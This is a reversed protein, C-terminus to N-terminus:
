DREMKRIEGGYADITYELEERDCYFELEYVTKRRDREFKIKSFSVDEAKVGTDSLAIEKAREVGILVDGTELVEGGDKELSKEATAAGVDRGKMEWELIMGDAERIVYEYEVADALFSVEYVAEGDEWETETRLREAMDATVGADALATEEATKMDVASTGTEQAAQMDSASSGTEQAAQMDSIETTQAAQKEAASGTGGFVTLAALMGAALIYRGNFLKLKKM